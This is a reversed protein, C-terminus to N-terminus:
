RAPGSDVRVRGLINVVLRRTEEGARVTITGFPVAFGKPSFRITANGSVVVGDLIPEPGVVTRPRGGPDEVIRYALGGSEIVLAHVVGSARALGRTLHIAAYLTSTTGAARYGPLVHDLALATAGVGLAMVALVTALEVLTVGRADRRRM